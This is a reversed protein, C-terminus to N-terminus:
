SRIVKKGRGQPVIELKPNKFSAFKRANLEYLFIGIASVESHPQLGVSINYDVLNYIEPPVKEGGVIVLIDRSKRIAQIKEQFPLGYVTLHVKLGKFNKM